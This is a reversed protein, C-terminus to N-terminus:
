DEDFVIRKPMPHLTDVAVAAAPPERPDNPSKTCRRQRKAAQARRRRERVGMKAAVIAECYARERDGALVFGAGGGGGGEELLASFTQAATSDCFRIFCRVCSEDVTPVQQPPLQDCPQGDFHAVSQLLGHPRLLTGEIAARVRRMQLRPDVLVSPSQTETELPWYVEVVSGPCFDEPLQKVSSAPTEEPLTPAESRATAVRQKREAQAMLQATKRDMRAMWAKLWSYFRPRWKLWDRYPLLRLESADLHTSGGADAGDKAADCRRETILRYEADMPNPLRYGAAYLRRWSALAQKSRRSCCRWVFQRALRENLPLVADSAVKPTWAAEPNANKPPTDSDALPAALDAATPALASVAREAADRSAFEVFAFGRAVGSTKFRPVNVYNVKGYAELQERLWDVVLVVSNSKSAKPAEPSTAAPDADANAQDGGSSEDGLCPIGTALVMHDSSPATFSFPVRRRIATGEWTTELLKSQKAAALLHEATAGLARLKNCKLLVDLSLGGDPSREVEFRFFGDRSLNADSFYFELQKRISSIDVDTDSNSMPPTTPLCRLEDPARAVAHCVEQAGLRSLSGETTVLVPLGQAVVVVAALCLVIKTICTRHNLGGVGPHYAGTLTMETPAVTALRVVRVAVPSAVDDVNKRGGVMRKLPVNVTDIAGAVTKLKAQDLTLVDVLRLRDTPTQNKRAAARTAVGATRIRDIALLGTGGVPHDLVLGAEGLDVVAVAQTVHGCKRQLFAFGKPRGTHYNVPVTVDVVHGYKGFAYRLDEHRVGDALNKVHVSAGRRAM